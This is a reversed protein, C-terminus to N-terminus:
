PLIIAHIGGWVAKVKQYQESAMRACHQITVTSLIYETSGLRFCWVTHVQPPPHHPEIVHVRRTGAAGEMATM